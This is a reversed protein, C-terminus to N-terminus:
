PAFQQDEDVLRKHLGDYTHKSIWQWDCYSMLDAYREHPCAQMPINLASDGVDFGICDEAISSIKGSAYPYHPDFADQGCFGPHHRGFTHALEHGAYWDSYSGDRDWDWNGTAPKGCPGVAVTTPDPNSPVNNAAGRFFGVDDAVLGYYHTRPDWGADVDAQRISLLQSHLMELLAEWLPDQGDPLPASFPPAFNSPSDVVAQSWEVRTVPYARTLFSRLHNFHIVDPAHKKLTPSKIDTYRIGLVRVRLVPGPVFDVVATNGAPLIPVDEGNSAVLLRKLQVNMPGVPPAPLLFNLSLSADRRQEALSPHESARLVVENASTIYQGPAGPEPAVVLEGRVRTNRKLSKPDLYVRVVTAKGEFLQVEHRMNQIAQTVEIGIVEANALAPLRGAPRRGNRHAGHESYGM